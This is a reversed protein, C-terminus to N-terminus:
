ASDQAKVPEPRGILESAANLFLAEGEDSMGHTITINLHNSLFEDAPMWRGEHKIRRTWACFTLIQKRLQAIEQASTELETLLREKERLTSRLELEIEKRRTIDEVQTIFFKPEGSPLRVLSVSLLVWAIGGDKRFYRKEMQYGDTKGAVLEDVQALDAKLDEPHTLAQFSLKTLEADSYGLIECLSHNVKLWSGNPAVLAMGIPAHQFANEFLSDSEISGSEM